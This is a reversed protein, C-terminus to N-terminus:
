SSIENCAKRLNDEAEKLDKLRSAMEKAVAKDTFGDTNDRFALWAKMRTEEDPFTHCDHVRCSWFGSVGAWLYHAKETYAIAAHLIPKLDQPVEKLKNWKQSASM